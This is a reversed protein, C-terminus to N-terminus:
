QSRSIDEEVREILIFDEPLCHIGITGDDWDVILETARSTNILHTVTGTRQAHNSVRDGLQPTEGSIYPMNMQHSRADFTLLEAEVSGLEDAM